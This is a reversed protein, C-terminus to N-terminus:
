LACNSIIIFFYIGMGWSIGEEEKKKEAEELQKKREMEEAIRQQADLIKAKRLEKM